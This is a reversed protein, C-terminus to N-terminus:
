RHSRPAVFERKAAKPVKQVVLCKSTALCDEWTLAGGGLMNSRDRTPRRTVFAGTTGPPDLRGIGRARM